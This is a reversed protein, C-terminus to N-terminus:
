GKAVRNEIYALDFGTVRQVHQYHLDRVLLTTTELRMAAMMLREASEEMRGVVYERVAADGSVDADDAFEKADREAARLEEVANRKKVDDSVSTVGLKAMNGRQEAQRIRAREQLFERLKQERASAMVQPSLSLTGSDMAVIASTARAIEMHRRRRLNLQAHHAEETVLRLLKGFNQLSTLSQSILSPSFSLV